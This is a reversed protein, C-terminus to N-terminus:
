KVMEVRAADTKSDQAGHGQARIRAADDRVSQRQAVSFAYKEMVREALAPKEELLHFLALNAGVQVNEPALEAAKYLSMRAEGYRGLLAQVYGLDNLIRVDIPALAAAAQLAALAGPLDGEAAAILGLGHRAGPLEEKELLGLYIQRAAVPEGVQRLADARLLRARRDNPWRQDFVDLHAMSAYFLRKQQLGVILELYFDPDRESRENPTVLATPATAAAAGAQGWAMAPLLFFVCCLGSRLNM